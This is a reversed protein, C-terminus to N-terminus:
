EQQAWSREEFGRRLVEGRVSLFSGKFPDTAAVGAFIIMSPTPHNPNSIKQANWEPGSGSKRLSKVSEFNLMESTSLRAPKAPQM